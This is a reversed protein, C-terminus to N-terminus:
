RFGSAARRAALAKGPETDPGLSLAALRPVLEVPAEIEGLVTGDYASRLTVKGANMPSAAAVVDCDRGDRPPVAAAKQFFKAWAEVQEEREVCVRLALVPAKAAPAACAGLLVAAILALVM